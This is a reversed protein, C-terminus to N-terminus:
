QEADSTALLGLLLDARDLCGVLRNDADVVAVSKHQGSLMSAIAERLPADERTVATEIMLDAAVRATAHKEARTDSPNPHGFPLRHILSRLASPRLAPTVRELVEADTIKGVVRRESDVVICWNLRTSVVAQVVEPLPTDMFVTPVDRRVSESVPAAVALRTQGHQAQPTDFTRAATRLLDLRSIMGVMAGQDDVVPFRKLRRDAMMEAVQTLLASQHVTVPGPTMVREATEGRHSLKDLEAHLEPTDLSPLLDVRITLSARELLDSNTIIGVPVGKDLVPIARYSKGVLLEVVHRVSAEPAVSVVKHSMVDSAHLTSAVDRVPHACFLAVATDEVTIFGHGVMEKVQPLLREVQQPSDIWDIVLPLRQNIDVLRATHIEGSGGFGEVGRFVTAGAAGEKRLFALIAVPLPQQKHLQGEDIYIRVRKAEVSFTDTKADLRSEMKVQGLGQLM